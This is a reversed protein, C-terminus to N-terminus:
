DFVHRTVTVPLDLSSFLRPAAEVVYSVANVARMATATM